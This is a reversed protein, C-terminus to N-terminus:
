DDIYEMLELAEDKTVLERKMKEALQKGLITMTKLQGKVFLYPFKQAM